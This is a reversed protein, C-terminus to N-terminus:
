ICEVKESPSNLGVSNTAMALFFPTDIMERRGIVWVYRASNIQPVVARAERPTSILVCSDLPDEYDIEIRCLAVQELERLRRVQISVQELESRHRAPQVLDVLVDDEEPM